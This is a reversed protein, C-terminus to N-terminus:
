NAAPRHRPVHSKPGMRLRNTIRSIPGGRMTRIFLDITERPSKIYKYEYKYDKYIIKKKSLFQNIEIYKCFFDIIKVNDVCSNLSVTSSDYISSLDLSM